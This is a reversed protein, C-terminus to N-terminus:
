HPSIAESLQSSHTILVVTGAGLPRWDALHLLHQALLLPFGLLGFRTNLFHVERLQSSKTYLLLGRCTNLLNNNTHNYYSLTRQTAM